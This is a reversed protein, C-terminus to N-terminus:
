RDASRQREYRGLWEVIPRDAPLLGVSELEGARVWRLEQGERPEPTGSFRTVLWIDLRVRKGPYDHVLELCPEAAQVAVGLEEDLERVLAAFPEEAANRKGGPFEWWGALEKNAPRSTVLWRGEADRMLAVVVDIARAAASDARSL